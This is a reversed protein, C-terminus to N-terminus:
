FTGFYFVIPNSFFFSYDYKKEGLQNESHNVSSKTIMLLLNLTHTWSFPNWLFTGHTKKETLNDHFAVM